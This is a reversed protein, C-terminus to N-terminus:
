RYKCVLGARRRQIRGIRPLACWLIFLSRAARAAAVIVTTATGARAVPMGARRMGTLAGRAGKDMDAVFQGHDNFLLTPKREDTGIIAETAKGRCLM